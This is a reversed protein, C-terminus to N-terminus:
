EKKRGSRLMFIRLIVMTRAAMAQANASPLFLYEYDGLLSGAFFFEDSDIWRRFYKGGGGVVKQGRKM